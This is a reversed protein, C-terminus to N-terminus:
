DEKNYMAHIMNAYASNFAHEQFKKLGTATFDIAVPNRKLQEKIENGNIFEVTVGDILQIAAEIKFGVAGGAFKGKHPRSKIVLKEIKYDEVLKAVDFQFKALQAQDRDDRLIFKRTRCEPLEFLGKDLALLAIVAESGQIEVGCVRM